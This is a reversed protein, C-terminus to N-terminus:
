PSRRAQSRPRAGPPRRARPSVAAAPPAPPAAPSPAGTGGCRHTGPAEQGPSSPRSPRRWMRLRSRDDDEAGAAPLGHREAASRKASSSRERPRIPPLRFGQATRSTAPQQDIAAFGSLRSPARRDDQAGEASPHGADRGARPSTASCSPVPAGRIEPAPAGCCGPM